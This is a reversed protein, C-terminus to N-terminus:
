RCRDVAASLTFDAPIFGNVSVYWQGPSLAPSTTENVVVRENSGNLWPRFDYDGLTPPLEGQRVYLDVDGGDGELTIELQSTNDPIDLTYHVWDDEGAFGSVPECSVLARAEASATVPEVQQANQGVETEELAAESVEDAVEAALADAPLEFDRIVAMHQMNTAGSDGRQVPAVDALPTYIRSDFVLGNPFTNEGISVPIEFPELDEDAFVWDYPRRRSANTGIDGNRDSPYPGDTDVVGDLSDLAAEGSNRTNFDGGIVLYDGEPINAIALERLAIAQRNRVSGSRTLFHVSVAWLDRDGPIDIQAWAFDRNGVQVDNWEGAAIIPYRSIVGNPIQAGDERYYDFEPGFTEAVWSSIAGDSNDGFNFEQILVIDPDLGQFIRTGEGPDYSQRNGSTTNAAMIRLPTEARGEPAIAAVLLGAVAMGVLGRECLGGAKLRVFQQLATPWRWRSLQSRLTM